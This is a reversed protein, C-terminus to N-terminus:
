KHHRQRYRQVADSILFRDQRSRPHSVPACSRRQFPCPISPTVREKGDVKHKEKQQRGM